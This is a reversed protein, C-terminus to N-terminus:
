LMPLILRGLRIAGVIGCGSIGSNLWCLVFVFVVVVVALNRMDRLGACLHVLVFLLLLLLARLEELSM